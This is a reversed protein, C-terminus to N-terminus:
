FYRKPTWKRKFFDVEYTLRLEHTQLQRTILDSGFPFELAYGVNLKKTIDFQMVVGASKTTRVVLGLWLQEFFLWNVGVDATISSESSHDYRITLTPKFKVQLFQNYVYGGTLYVFRSDTLTKYYTSYESKSAHVIQPISLGIYYDRTYYFAGIGWRFMYRESVDESFAVDPMDDGWDLDYKTLYNNYNVIGAKLGLHLFRHRDLQLKYSYNGAITLKNEYNIKEYTMDVGVAAFGDGVPTYFNGMSMLPANTHGAYYQRVYVSGGTLGWMATYAPNIFQQGNMYQMLLSESYLYKTQANAYSSIFM